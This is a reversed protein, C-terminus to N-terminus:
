GGTAPQGAPSPRVCAARDLIEIQKLVAAADPLRRDVEKALMGDALAQLPALAAPLPAPTAMLHQSLVEMLTEGAFPPRGCLLEHFLVGLSYVDAAAHAPAGQLQEPSVYRPTGVLGGSAAQATGTETALGFDGLALSGDARVLFNAPKVDRHVLGRVHLQALAQAAQRLMRVAQAAPVAAGLREVLSGGPVHEMALYPMSGAAGQELMRVVHRHGLSAGIAFERSFAPAEAAGAALKLAVLTGSELDQALWVTSRRGEGIRRQLRYRGIAPMVRGTLLPASDSDSWEPSAGYASSLTPLVLM